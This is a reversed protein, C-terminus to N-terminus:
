SETDSRLRTESSYSLEPVLTSAHREFGSFEAGIAEATGYRAWSELAKRAVVQLRGILKIRVWSMAMAVAEIARRTRRNHCPACSGVIVLSNSGNSSLLIGVRYRRIYSSEQRAEPRGLQLM